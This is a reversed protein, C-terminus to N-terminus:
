WVLIKENIMGIDTKISLYYYGKPFSKLSITAEKDLADITAHMQQGLQNCISIQQIKGSNDLVFNVKNRAPNPYLEYNIKIHDDISNTLLGHVCITNKYHNPNDPDPYIGYCGSSANPLSDRSSLVPYYQGVNKYNHQFNETKGYHTDVTGDGWDMTLVTNSYDWYDGMSNKLTILTDRFATAGAGTWGLGSEYYYKPGPYIGSANVSKQFNVVCGNKTRVHLSSTLNRNAEFIFTDTNEALNDGGSVWRIYEFSDNTTTNPKSLNILTVKSLCDLTDISISFDVTPLYKCQFDTNATDVLILEQNFTDVCDNTDITTFQVRYNGYDSYDHKIWNKPFPSIYNTFTISDGEIITSDGFDLKFKKISNIGTHNQYALSINDKRLIRNYKYTNLEIPTPLFELTETTTDNLYPCMDNDDIWKTISLKWIGGEPNQFPVWNITDGIESSKLTLSNGYNDYYTSKIFDEKKTLDIFQISNGGYCQVRPSLMKINSAINKTRPIVNVDITSTCKGLRGEGTFTIINIGPIKFRHTPFKDDSESGDGFDWHVISDYGPSNPYFERVSLECLGYCSVSAPDYIKPNCQASLLHTFLITILALLERYYIQPTNM